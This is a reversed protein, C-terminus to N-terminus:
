PAIGTSRVASTGALGAALTALQSHFVLGATGAPVALTWEVTGVPGPVQGGIVVFDALLPFGHVEITAPQGSVLLLAPQGVPGGGHWTLQSGPAVLPAVALQPATPATYTLTGAPLDETGFRVSVGTPGLVLPAPPVFALAGDQAPGLLPVETGGVVVAQAGSLGGGSVTVPGPQFSSVQSPSLAAISPGGPPPLLALAAAFDVRGHAVWTGVDVTGAELAARVAAAHSPSRQGGLRAYLLAAEGAVIPTAMSTGSMYKYADGKWTSYIAQGPAAVDVWDGWNSFSARADTASSAGVAIVFPHAAPWAKTSSGDNGAAAVLVCGADAAQQLASKIAPDAFSSVWSMSLVQAGRERANHIAAVLASTPFSANGCRYALFRTTDGAGAVGVGNDTEAAALGSCHTGHGDQDDPDDDGAYTDLGGAYHGDLDTHHTDVGSDIIAVLVDPSGASLDWAEAARVKALHWQQPWKPDSPIGAARHLVNPQVAVVGAATALRALGAEVAEGAPLAIRALGPAVAARWTGGAAAAREAQAAPSLGPEFSALVEGAVVRRGQWDEEVLVPDATRGGPALQARSPLPALAALALAALLGVAPARPGRPGPLRPPSVRRRM